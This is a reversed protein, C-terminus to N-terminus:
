QRQHQLLQVSRSLIVEFHYSYHCHHFMVGKAIEKRYKANAGIFYYSIKQCVNQKNTKSFLKTRTPHGEM